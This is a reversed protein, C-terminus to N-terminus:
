RRRRADPGFVGGRDFAAILQRSREEFEAVDILVQSSLGSVLFSVISILVSASCKTTLSGDDLGDQVASALWKELPAYGARADQLEPRRASDVRVYHVFPAIDPAERVAELGALFVAQIRRAGSSDGEAQNLIREFIEAFAHNAAACYLGAKNGFHHYLSPATVGARDLIEEVSTGDYGHSGFM